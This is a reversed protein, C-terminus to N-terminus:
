VNEEKRKGIFMVCVLGLALIIGAFASGSQLVVGTPVETNKVNTFAVTANDTLENDEATKDAYSFGEAHGSVAATVTYGDNNGETISYETGYVMDHITVSQGHKLWLEFGGTTGNTVTITSPNTKAGHYATAPVSLDYTSGETATISYSFSAATVSAPATLTINFSFYQDKSAQNGDVTKTITLDVTKAPYTEALTGNKEDGLTDTKSLIFTSNLVGANDIVFQFLYFTASANSPEQPADTDFSQEVTWRYLGPESITVDSWDVTLTKTATKNATSFVDTSSYTVDAISPEGTVANETNTVGNEAAGIVEPGATVDFSYTIDYLLSTADDETLTLSHSITANSPTIATYAAMAPAMMTAMMAVIMLVAFLKKM